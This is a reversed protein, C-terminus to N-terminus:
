KLGGFHAPKNALALGARIDLATGANGCHAVGRIGPSSGKWGRRAELNAWPAMQLKSSNGSM